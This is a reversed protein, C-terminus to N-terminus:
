VQSQKQSNTNIAKVGAALDVITMKDGSLLVTFYNKTRSDLQLFGQCLDEVHKAAFEENISKPSEEYYMEPLKLPTPHAVWYYFKYKKLDSYALVLFLSLKWPSQLATGDQISNIVDKGMSDIFKEPNIQRFAEFTNTNIMRGCCLVSLSNDVTELDRFIVQM